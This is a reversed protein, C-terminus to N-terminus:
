LFKRGQKIVAEGKSTILYRIKNEKDYLYQKESEDSCSRHIVTSINRNLDKFKNRHKHSFHYASTFDKFTKVKQVKIPISYKNEYNEYVTFGQNDKKIEFSVYYVKSM